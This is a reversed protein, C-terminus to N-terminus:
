HISLDKCKKTFIWGSDLGAYEDDMRL